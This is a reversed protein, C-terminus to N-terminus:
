RGPLMAPHPPGSFTWTDCEKIFQVPRGPAGVKDELLVAQGLPLQTEEPGEEGAPPPCPPRRTRPPPVCLQTLALARAEPEPGPKITPALGGGRQACHEEASDASQM